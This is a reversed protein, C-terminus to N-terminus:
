NGFKDNLVDQAKDVHEDSVTDKGTKENIADKGKNLADEAKDSNFDIGM